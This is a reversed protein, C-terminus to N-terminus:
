PSVEQSKINIIIIPHKQGSHLIMKTTKTSKQINYFLIPLSAQRFIDKESLFVFSCIKQLFISPHFCGEILIRLTGREYSIVQMIM